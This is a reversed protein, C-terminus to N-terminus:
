GSRLRMVVIDTFGPFYLGGFVFDYVRVCCGGGRREEEKKRAMKTRALAVFM